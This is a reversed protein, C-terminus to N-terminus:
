WNMRNLEVMNDIFLSSFEEIENPINEDIM